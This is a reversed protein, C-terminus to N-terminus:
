KRKQYQEKTTDLAMIELYSTISIIERVQFSGGNQFSMFFKKKQDQHETVSVLVLISTMSSWSVRSAHGGGAALSDFLTSILVTWINRFRYRFRLAVLLSNKIKRMKSFTKKQCRLILPVLARFPM